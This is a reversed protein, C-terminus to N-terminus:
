NTGASKKWIHLVIAAIATVFFFGAAAGFMSVIIYAPLVYIVLFIWLGGLCGSVFPYRSPQYPAPWAPPGKLYWSISMAVSTVVAAAVLSWGFVSSFRFFHDKTAVVFVAVAIACVLASFAQKPTM